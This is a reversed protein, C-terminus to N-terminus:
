TCAEHHPASYSLCEGAGHVRFKADGPHVKDGCTPCTWLCDDCVNETFEGVKIEHVHHDEPIEDDCWYCITPLPEDPMYDGDTPGSFDFMYISM